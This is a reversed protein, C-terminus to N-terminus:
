EVVNFIERAIRGDPYSSSGKPFLTRREDSSYDNGLTYNLHIWRVPDYDLKVNGFARGVKSSNIQRNVIFFPNDYGRSGDESTPNQLRYSRHYGEPSLYTRNDFDPPTRWAGLLLGSVNSGRQIRDANVDNFSFNGSLRLKDNIFQSANLRAAYRQYDSKGKIFGDQSYSGLSLYYTTRENGGSVSVNNEFVHGTEFLDTEHDFVPVDAGLRPGWSWPSTPDALGDVGQGWRTQLPQTRNVRDWSYSMKYSLRARGAKGKKTQVMVVGNAARSGYIASAAPGKLIEISEIDEPNVDSARNMESVGDHGLTNDSFVSENSVPSGDVVFLPQTGGTISNAGRIRIYSAAGPEGSQSTVEVNAVKGHLASVLNGEDSNVVDTGGVKAITVGLKEKEVGVGFGTVVVEDMKLVDPALTFNRVISRTEAFDIRATLKKYGIYSVELEASGAKGVSGPVEFRYNGEADTVAGLRLSRIMVNAAVLPRGNEDTVRGSLTTGDQGFAATGASWIWLAILAMWKRKM